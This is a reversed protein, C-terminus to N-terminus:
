EIKHIISNIQEQQKNIIKMMEDNDKILKLIIDDKTFNSYNPNCIVEINNENNNTNITINSQNTEDFISEKLISNLM